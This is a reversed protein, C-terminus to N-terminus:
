VLNLEKTISFNNSVPTWNKRVLVHPNGTFKIIYSKKFRRKSKESVYHKLASM